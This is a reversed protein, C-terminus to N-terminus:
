VATISATASASDCLWHMFSPDCSTLLNLCKCESSDLPLSMASITKCDTTSGLVDSFYYINAFKRYAAGFSTDCPNGAESPYYRGGILAQLEIRCTGSRRVITLQLERRVVYWCTSETTCAPDCWELNSNDNGQTYRWVCSTGSRTLVYTGTLFSDCVGCEDDDLTLDVEFTSPADTTCCDSCPTTCCGGCKSGIIKM